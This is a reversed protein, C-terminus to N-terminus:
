ALEHHIRGSGDMTMVQFRSVTSTASERIEGSLRTRGFDLFRKVTEEYATSYKWGRMSGNADPLHLCLIELQPLHADLAHLVRECEETGVGNLTTYIAVSRGADLTIELMRTADRNAWPEAMGAFDIRVHAPVKALITRFDELRLYKNPAARLSSS